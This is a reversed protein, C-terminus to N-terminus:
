DERESQKIKEAATYFRIASPSVAKYLKGTPELTGDGCILFTSIDGSVMNGCVLFRGDPSHNISRPLCGGSTINQRLVPLGEETVSLVAIQNLGSLTVYLTKGSPHILIDQAGVPKGDILGMEEGLLPVKRFLELKGAEESYYFCNLQALNENNAYFVPLKPHFVGYRPFCGVEDTRYADTFVIKEQKRDLKFAYLKDMGKDCVVFMDGKPSSIVSHLRSIIQVLQIHNTVPDVSKRSNPGKAGTGPTIAVDCVDGIGGDERLRFLAVAADDFLVENEFTGNENKRIKTVHWPDACHCTLIYKGSMDLCLYSPEPLLSEKENILTLSGTESNIHFALLYGGGGIEGRRDGCENVVYLIQSKEDLCLQGAAVECYVTRILIMAGTEPNFEFISIGKPSPAFGWNGVYAYIKKPM